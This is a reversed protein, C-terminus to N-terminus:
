LLAFASTELWRVLYRYPLKSQIPLLDTLTKKLWGQSIDSKDEDVLM